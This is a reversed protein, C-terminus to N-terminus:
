YNGHAQWYAYAGAWGGYRAVYGNMARLAAIPDNWAGPWKGCPLQQGLGCSGSFPNVASPNWGSERTVIYDVYGFNAPDIGAAIMWDQHSGGTPPAVAIQQKQREAEAQKAQAAQAEAEAMARQEEELRKAEAIQADRRALQPQIVQNWDPSHFKIKDMILTGTRSNDEIATLKTDGKAQKPWIVIVLAIAAVFFPLYVKLMRRLILPNETLPNRGLRCAGPSQGNTIM